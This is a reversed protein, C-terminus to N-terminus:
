KVVTLTMEIKLIEGSVPDTASSYQGTQGDRLFLQAESRFTRLVPASSIPPNGLSAPREGGATYVSSQELVCAVRFRGDPMSDASCDLNNGVDRYTMPGPMNTQTLQQLPVQIGMRIRSPRDDANVALTYPLSSLKTEGQYRAFVVQLRLPTPVRKAAPAKEAAPAEKEKEKEKEQVSAWAGSAALFAAVLPVVARVLKTRM